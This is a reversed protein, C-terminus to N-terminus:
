SKKLLEEEHTRAGAELVSEMQPITSLRLPAEASARLCAPGFVVFGLAGRIDM